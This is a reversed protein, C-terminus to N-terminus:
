ARCLVWECDCMKYGTVTKKFCDVIQSVGNTINMGFKTKKEQGLEHTIDKKETNM